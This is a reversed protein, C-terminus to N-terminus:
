VHALERSCDCRLRGRRVRGRRRGSTPSDSAPVSDPSLVIRESWRTVFGEGNMSQPLSLELLIEPGAQDNLVVYFLLIWMAPPALSADWVDPAVLRFSAANAWIAERTKRGKASRNSPHLEASPTGTLADGAMVVISHSGSPAVTVEHGGSRHVEWNPLLERLRTTTKGTPMTGRLWLPDNSTSELLFGAGYKVAEVLAEEPVGLNALRLARQAPLAHLMPREHDFASHIEQM